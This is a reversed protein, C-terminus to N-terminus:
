IEGGNIAAMRRVDKTCPVVTLQTGEGFLSWRYVGAFCLNTRPDYSYRIQNPAEQKYEYVVHILLTSFTIWFIAVSIASVIAITKRM